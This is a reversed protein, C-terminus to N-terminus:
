PLVYFTSIAVDVEYAPTAEVVPEAPRAYSITRVVTTRPQTELQELFSLWQQKSPAVLNFKFDIQKLKQVAVAPVGVENAIASESFTMDTIAVGTAQEIRDLNLIFADLQQEKPLKESEAETVPETGALRVQQAQKLLMQKQQAQTQLQERADQKNAVMFGVSAMVMVSLAVACCILVWHKRELLSTM